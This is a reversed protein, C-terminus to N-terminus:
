WGPSAECHPELFVIVDGTAQRAGLNKGVIFGVRKSSRLIKVADGFHEECYETL